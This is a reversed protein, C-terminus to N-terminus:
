YKYKTGNFGMKMSIINSYEIILKKNIQLVEPTFTQKLGAVAMGAIAKGEHNFIPVGIALVGIDVEEDSIAFGDKRITKIEKLLEKKGLTNETFRKGEMDKKIIKEIETDELHAFLAKAAAGGYFPVRKGIECYFRVNDRGDVRDIFVLHDDNRIGLTVTNQCMHALQKLLPHAVERLELNKLVLNGLQIMGVGLKYKKNEPNQEVLDRLKLSQLIKYVTSKNIGTIRSIENLGLEYAKESSWVFLVDLVNEASNLLKM